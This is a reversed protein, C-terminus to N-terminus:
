GGGRRTGRRASSPARPASPPSRRPEAPPWAPFLQICGEAGDTAQVLMDNVAHSM